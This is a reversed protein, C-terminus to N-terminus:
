LVLSKVGITGPNWLNNYGRRVTCDTRIFDSCDERRDRLLLARRHPIPGSRRSYINPFRLGRFSAVRRWKKEEPQIIGPLEPELNSKRLDRFRVKYHRFNSFLKRGTRSHSLVKVDGRNCMGARVRSGM